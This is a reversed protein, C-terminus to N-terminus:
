GRGKRRLPGRHPAAGHRTFKNRSKGSAKELTEFGFFGRQKLLKVVKATLSQVGAAFPRGFPEGGARMVWEYILDTSKRQHDKTLGRDIEALPNTGRTLKEKPM